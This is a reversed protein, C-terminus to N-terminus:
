QLALNNKQCGLALRKLAQQQLQLIALGALLNRFGLGPKLPIHVHLKIPQQLAKGGSFAGREIGAQM